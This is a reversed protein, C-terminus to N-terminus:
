GSAMGIFIGSLQKIIYVWLILHPIILSLAFGNILFLRKRKKNRSFIFTLIMLTGIAMALWRILHISYNIAVVSTPILLNNNESSCLNYINTILPTWSFIIFLLAILVLTISLWYESQIKYKM